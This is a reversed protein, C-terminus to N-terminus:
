LNQFPTDIVRREPLKDSCELRNLWRVRTLLLRNRREILGEVASWRGAQWAFPFVHDTRKSQQRNRQSGEGLVGPVGGGASPRCKSSPGSAPMMIRLKTSFKCSCLITTAWPIKSRWQIVARDLRRHNVGCSKCRQGAPPQRPPLGFINAAKMVMMLRIFRWGCPNEARM